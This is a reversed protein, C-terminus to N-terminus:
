AACCPADTILLLQPSGSNLPSVDPACQLRLAAIHVNEVPSEPFGPPHGAYSGNTTATPPVVNVSAPSPLTVLSDAHLPDPPPM